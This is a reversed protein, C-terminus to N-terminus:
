PKREAPAPWAQILAKADIAAADGEFAFGSTAQIFRNLGAGFQQFATNYGAADFCVQRSGAPAVPNSSVGRGASNAAAQARRLKDLAADRDTNAARIRDEDAKEQLAKNAKAQEGLASTKDKFSDFNAQVVALDKRVDKTEHHWYQGWLFIGLMIPVYWFQRLLALAAIM